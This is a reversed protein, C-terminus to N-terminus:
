RTGLRTLPLIAAISLVYIGIAANFSFADRMNGVPLIISGKFFM